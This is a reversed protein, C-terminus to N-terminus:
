QPSVPGIDRGVLNAISESRCAALHSQLQRDFQQVVDARCSALNRKEGADTELEFLYRTGRLRDVIFKTSRLSAFSLALRTLDGNIEFSTESYALLDDSGGNRLLPLLSQGQLPHCPAPTSPSLGALELLTPM